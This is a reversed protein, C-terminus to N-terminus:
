VAFFRIREAFAGSTKMAKGEASLKARSPGPFAIVFDAATVIALYGYSVNSRSLFPRKLRGNVWHPPGYHFIDLPLASIHGLM